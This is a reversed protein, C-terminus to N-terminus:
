SPVDYHCSAIPHMQDRENRMWGHYNIDGLVLIFIYSTGMFKALLSIWPPWHVKAMATELQRHINSSLSVNRLMGPVNHLVGLVNHLVGVVNNLVGLVNRLKDPVNRLVGTVNRLMGPANLLVDSVNRLVGADNTWSKYHMFCNHTPASIQQLM